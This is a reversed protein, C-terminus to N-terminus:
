LFSLTNRLEGEREEQRSGVRAPVTLDPDAAEVPRTREVRAARVDRHAEGETRAVGVDGHVAAAVAVATVRDPCHTRRPLVLGQETVPM